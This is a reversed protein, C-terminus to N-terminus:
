GIKEVLLGCKQGDIELTQELDTKEISNALVSGSIQDQFDVFVSVLWDDSASYKVVVKDGITLGQEKRMQNITRIIERAVGEKKLQDDVVTNLWVKCKGDEKAAWGNEEVAEAFGVKKVNLEDAIVALLEHSFREHNMRLEALPQRVKLKQESRLSLGMEVMKRALVM